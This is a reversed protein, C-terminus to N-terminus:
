VKVTEVRQHHPHPLPHSQRRCDNRDGENAEITEAKGLLDFAPGLHCHVYQRDGFYLHLKVHASFTENGKNLNSIM